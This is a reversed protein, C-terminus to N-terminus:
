SLTKFVLSAMMAPSAEPSRCAASTRRSSFRRSGVISVKADAAIQEGAFPHAEQM